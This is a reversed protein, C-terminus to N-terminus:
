NIGEQRDTSIGISMLKNFKTVMAAIVSRYYKEAVLSGRWYGLWFALTVALLCNITYVDM